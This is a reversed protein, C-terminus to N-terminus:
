VVRNPALIYLFRCDWDRNHDLCENLRNEYLFLNDERAFDDRLTTLVQQKLRWHAKNADTLKRATHPIQHATLWQSILTEPYELMREDLGDVGRGEDSFIAIKGGPRLVRLCNDMFCGFDEVFYHSDISCVKDFTQPPYPLECLDGVTFTLPLTNTATRTLARAIARDSIDVGTFRAGTRKCLYETIHGTGCGLDLVRDSAQVDLLEVLLHLQALDAMGHQCLNQGYVRECLRAHAASLEARRYFENYFTQIDM